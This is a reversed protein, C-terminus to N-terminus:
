FRFQVKTSINKSEVPMGTAQNRAPSFRYKEVSKIAAEEFVGEPSSEVVEINIPVGKTDIGFRVTVWGEIEKKLAQSPYRPATRSILKAPIIKPPVPKAKEATAVQAKPAAQKEQQAAAIEATRTKIDANLSALGAKDVNLRKILAALKNTEEIKDAELGQRALALLKSSLSRVRPESNAKSIKNTKLADSVLQYANGKQPPILNNAALASDIRSILAQEAKLAAALSSSGELKDGLNEVVQTFQSIEEQSGRSRIKRMQNEVAASLGQSLEDNEANLPEIIRLSEISEAAKDFDGAALFQDYQTRVATAVAKRGDYAVSDYPDLALVKDYYELANDGKPSTYRGDLMANAANQNLENILTVNENTEVELDEIGELEFASEVKAQQTKEEGSGFVLWGILGLVAVGIGAYIAPNTKRQAALSDISARNEPPGVMMIDEGAAKRDILEQNLTRASKFALFLQSANVPKNFARYVIPQINSKLIEGLKDKEGILMLVQTPDAKKIKIAQEIVQNVNSGDTDCDYIIICNNNLLSTDSLAESVSRRAHIELDTNNGSVINEVISSDDSIILVSPNQSLDAM